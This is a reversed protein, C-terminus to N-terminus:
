HLILNTPSQLLTPTFYMETFSSEFNNETVFFVAFKRLIEININTM